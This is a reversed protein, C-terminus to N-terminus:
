DMLEGAFYDGDNEDEDDQDRERDAAGKEWGIAKSCAVHLENGGPAARLEQQRKLWYAGTEGEFWPDGIASFRIGALLDHYPKADIVAKRRATLKM